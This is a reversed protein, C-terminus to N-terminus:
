LRPWRDKLCYHCQNKLTQTVINGTLHGSRLELWQEVPCYTPNFYIFQNDHSCIQYITHNQTCSRIVSGACSYYTHFLLIKTVICGAQVICMCPDCSSSKQAAFPFCIWLWTLVSVKHLLPLPLYNAPSAYGSPDWPYALTSM